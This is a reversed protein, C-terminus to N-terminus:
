ALITCVLEYILKLKISKMIKLHRKFHMKKEYFRLFDSEFSIKITLFHKQTSYVQKYGMQVVVANFIASFIKKEGFFFSKKLKKEGFSHMLIYTSWFVALGFDM